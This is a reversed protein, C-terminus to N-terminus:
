VLMETSFTVFNTAASIDDGHGKVFITLHDYLAYRDECLKIISVPEASIINMLKVDLQAVYVNVNVNVNMNNSTRIKSLHIYGTEGDCHPSYIPVDCGDHQFCLMLNDNDLAPGGECNEHFKIYIMNKEPTLELKSEFIITEVDDGAPWYRIDYTEMSAFIKNIGAITTELKSVLTKYDNLLSTLYDASLM